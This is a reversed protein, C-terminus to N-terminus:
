FLLVKEALLRNRLMCCLFRNIKFFIFLHFVACVFEQQTFFCVKISFQLLLSGGAGVNTDKYKRIVRCSIQTIYM